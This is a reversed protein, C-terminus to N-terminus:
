LVIGNQLSITEQQIKPVNRFILYQLLVAKKM